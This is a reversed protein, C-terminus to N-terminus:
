SKATITVAVLAASSDGGAFVCQVQTFDFSTNDDNTEDDCLSAVKKKKKDRSSTVVRFPVVRVNTTGNGLQGVRGDGWAFLGMNTLAISHRSGCCLARIDHGRLTRIERPLNRDYLDGNGLQGYRSSGWSFTRKINKVFAITFEGGMRIETANWVSPVMEPRNRNKEDGLGLQGSANHGWTYIVPKVVKRTMPMGSLTDIKDPIEEEVEGDLIAGAHRRGASIQYVIGGLNPVARPTDQRVVDGLGLQGDRGTTGWTFVQCTDTRIVAFNHGLAIQMVRRDKDVNFPKAVPSVLGKLQVQQEHMNLSNFSAPRFPAQAHTHTLSLSLSLSLSLFGWLRVSGTRFSKLYSNFPKNTCDDAGVQVATTTTTSNESKSALTPVDFADGGWKYLLYVTKEPAEDVAEDPDVKHLEVRVRKLIEKWSEATEDKNHNSKKRSSSSSYRIKTGFDLNSYKIAVDLPTENRMDPIIKAGHSYLLRGIEINGWKACYHLPTQGFKDRANVNAHFAIILMEICEVRRSHIAVHLPSLLSDRTPIKITEPKEVLIRATIEVNNRDIAYHLPTYGDTKTIPTLDPKFKELCKMLDLFNLRAAVHIMAFDDREDLDNVRKRNVTLLNEIFVLDCKGPGKRAEAILREPPIDM